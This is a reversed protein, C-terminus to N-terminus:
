RTLRDKLRRLAAELRLAPTPRQLTLWHLETAGTALSRKYRDDGALFDYVRRGQARNRAIAAVHTVLGPKFRNDPAAAFGSQYAYVRGRYVFNYLCGVTGHAGAVRLLQIEGHPLRDAILRRHFGVFAPNAFAGPRGRAQWSAQHLATLEEWISWAAALDGASELRLDGYLRQSRRVQQRTNASLAALADDPGLAALDVFPAPSAQRVVVPLGVAALRDRWPAPVGGFNLEQWAIPFDRDVLFRLCAVAAEAACDRDLLLGNHEITLQDLAPSGTEHLSLTRARVFGHRRVAHPVLIGLAVVRGGARARLCLPALNAPLAALWTGIWGWSQFFGHDSRASLGQWAPALEGPGRVPRLEVDM